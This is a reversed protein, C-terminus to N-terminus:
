VWEICMSVGKAISGLKGARLGSFVSYIDVVRM